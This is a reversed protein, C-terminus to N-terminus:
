SASIPPNSGFTPSLMTIGTTAWSWAALRMTKRSVFSMSACLGRSLPNTAVASLFVIVSVFPTSSLAYGDVLRAIWPYEQGAPAM